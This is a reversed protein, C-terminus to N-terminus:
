GRLYRARVIWMVGKILSATGLLLVLVWWLVDPRDVALWIGAALTFLAGAGLAPIADGRVDTRLAQVGELVGVVLAWIMIIDLPTAYKTGYGYALSAGLGSGVAGSLFQLWWGRDGARCALAAWLDLLGYVVAFAGFLKIVMAYEVFVGPVVATLAVLIVLGFVAAALGQLDVLWWARASNASM